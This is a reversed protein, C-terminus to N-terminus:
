VGVTSLMASINCASGKTQEAQINMGSVTIAIKAGDEGGIRFLANGDHACRATAQYGAGEGPVYAYVTYLAPDTAHVTFITTPTASAVSTLSAVGSNQTQGTFSTRGKGAGGTLFQIVGTGWVYVGEYTYKVSSDSLNALIGNRIVTSAVAGITYVEASTGTIVHDLTLGGIDGCVLALHAEPTNIHTNRLMVFLGAAAEIKINTGYSGEFWCGDFCVNAYGYEDDITSRTVVNGTSTNGTTGNLEIDTGYFNIGGGRILNVGFSSNRQIKGGYFNVNNSYINGTSKDASYGTANNDLRINYHNCVLAGFTNLGVGCVNVRFNSTVLQALDTVKLGDHTAGLGVISCDEIVLGSDLFGTATVSLVPTTTAGLKKIVTADRGAGRITMSVYSSFVFDLATVRITGAPLNMVGGGAAYLANWCDTMAATDDSGDAKVGFDVANVIDRLKAQATRAQAGTGAQLFGVLSSGSSAALESAAVPATINDVDYMTVDTSDTMIIRYANSGLWISARGAANLVVPNANKVALAATTWTDAAVLGGAAYTYVKGGSLPAGTASTGYFQGGILNMTM